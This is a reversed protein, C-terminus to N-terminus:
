LKLLYKEDFLGLKNFTSEIKIAKREKSSKIIAEFVEMMHYAMEKSTQNPINNRIAYAMESPGIGRSNTTLVSKYDITKYNPSDTYVGSQLIKVEGGFNNADPMNIIGKEGQINFMSEEPFITNGNFNITGMAGNELILIAVLQNESEIEISDGEIIRQPKLIRSFGSVENIPGLISCIATLFYIGRDLGIGAGEKTLSKFIPYMLDLNINIYAHFGTVLGIEGNEVARKATQIAGGLFTEPACGLYLNLDDALALLENAKHIDSALAKETFVHKGSILSKKIIDYHALPPTLNVILEISDDNLIEELTKAQINYKEAKKRANEISKAACCVVDLNKFREIMNVFYIDSIKGCGVVATKMKKM